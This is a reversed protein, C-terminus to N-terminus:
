SRSLRRTSIPYVYGSSARMRLQGVSRARSPPGADTPTGVERSPKQEWEVITAARNSSAHPPTAEVRWLLPTRLRPVTSSTGTVNVPTSGPVELSGHVDILHRGIGFLARRGYRRPQRLLVDAPVYGAACVGLGRPTGAADRRRVHRRPEGARTRQSGSHVYRIATAPISQGTQRPVLRGRVLAGAAVPRATFWIEGADRGARLRGRPRASTSAWRGSGGPLVGAAPDDPVRRRPSRRRARDM